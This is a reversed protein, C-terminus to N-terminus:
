KLLRITPAIMCGTKMAGKPRSARTPGFVVRNLTMMPSSAKAM